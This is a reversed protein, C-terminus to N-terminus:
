PHLHPIIYSFKRPRGRKRTKPEIPVEYLAADHRLRTLYTCGLARTKDVVEKKAYFGDAVLWM